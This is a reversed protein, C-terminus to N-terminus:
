RAFDATDIIFCSDLSYGNTGQKCRPAPLLMTTETLLVDVALAQWSSTCPLDVLVQSRRGSCRLLTPSRFYPMTVKILKFNLECSNGSIGEAPHLWRRM